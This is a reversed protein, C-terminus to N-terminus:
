VCRMSSKKSSPCVNIWIPCRTRKDMRLHTSPLISVMRTCHPTFICAHLLAYIPLLKHTQAVWNGTTSIQSKGHVM